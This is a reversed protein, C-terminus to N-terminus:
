GAHSGGRDTLNHGYGSGEVRRCPPAISTNEWGHRFSTFREGTAMFSKALETVGTGLFGGLQFGLVLGSSFLFLLSVIPIGGKLRINHVQSSQRPGNHRLCPSDQIGQLGPCVIVLKSPFAQVVIAAPDTNGQAMVVAEETPIPLRANLGM